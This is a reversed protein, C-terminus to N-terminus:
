TLLFFPLLLVTAAATAESAAAKLEPAAVLEDASV